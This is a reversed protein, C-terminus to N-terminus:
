PQYANIFFCIRHTFKEDYIPIELFNNLSISNTKKMKRMSGLPSSAMFEFKAMEHGEMSKKARWHVPIKLNEFKPKSLEPLDTPNIEM